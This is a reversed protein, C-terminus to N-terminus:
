KEKERGTKSIYEIDNRRSLGLCNQALLLRYELRAIVTPRHAPCRGKLLLHGCNGRCVVREECAQGALAAM